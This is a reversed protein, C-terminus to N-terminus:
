AASALSSSDASFALATSAQKSGELVLSPHGKGGQWLRIRADVGGGALWRGDPSYALALLIGAEDPPAVPQGSATDWIRLGRETDTAALRTGDPSVALCMNSPSVAAGASRAGTGEDRW